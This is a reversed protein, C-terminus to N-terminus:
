AARLLAMIRFYKTNHFLPAINSARRDLNKGYGSAADRAQWRNSRFRFTAM